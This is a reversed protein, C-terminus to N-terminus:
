MSGMSAVGLAPKGACLLLFTYSGLLPSGGSLGQGRAGERARSDEGDTDLGAQCRGAELGPGAGVGWATGRLCGCGARASWKARM